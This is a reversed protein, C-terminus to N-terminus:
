NAHTTSGASTREVRLDRNTLHIGDAKAAMAIDVRGYVVIVVGLKHAMDVAEVASIYFERSSAVSERLQIISAGGAALREVQEALSLNSLTSDTGPYVRLFVAKHSM